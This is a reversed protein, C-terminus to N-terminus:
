VLEHIPRFCSYVTAKSSRDCCFAYRGWSTAVHRHVYTPAALQYIYVMRHTRDGLVLRCSCRGPCPNNVGSLDYPLLSRPVLGHQHSQTLITSCYHGLRFSEGGCSCRMLCATFFLLRKWAAHVTTTSTCSILSSPEYASM